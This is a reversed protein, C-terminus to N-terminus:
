QCAFTSRARLIPGWFWLALTALTGPGFALAGLLTNGWGWGLKSYLDGAALPLVFGAVCRLVITAASASAAYTPYGALTLPILRSYQVYLPHKSDLIYPMLSNFGMMIGAAFIFAGINPVIWHTTKDASWGYLLFGAPLVLVSVPILLLLRFEPQGIGDRRKTLM